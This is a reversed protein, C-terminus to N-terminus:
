VKRDRILQLGLFHHADGLDSMKFEEKMANKFGQLMPKSNSALILDDVYVLIIMFEGGMRRVYVSHDANSRSFGNKQLHAHLREYWARPSQKLGYITRELKCVLHGEEPKAFGEPQAMYIDEKLMGNLFASKVDMHQLELDQIAAMTLIARLSTLKAVPAFTENYDVGEVQSFGKACLRAKYREISGDAQRKIKFVWKCAIAKRGKPLKALRWTGNEMLADYEAQIAVKWKSADPCQLAEKYTTPEEM